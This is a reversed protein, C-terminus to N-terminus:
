PTRCRYTKEGPALTASYEGTSESCSLAGFTNLQPPANLKRWADARHSANFGMLGSGIRNPDRAGHYYVTRVPTMGNTLSLHTWWFTQPAVQASFSPTALAILSLAALALGMCTGTRAWAKTMM